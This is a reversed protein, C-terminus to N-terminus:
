APRFCAECGEAQIEGSGSRVFFCGDTRGSPSAGTSRVTHHTVIRDPALSLGLALDTSRSRRADPGPGARRPRRAERQGQLRVALPDPADAPLGAPHSGPGPGAHRRLHREQPGPGPCRPPSGSGRSPRGSADRRKLDAAQDYVLCHRGGTDEQGPLDDRQGPRRGPRSRRLHHHDQRPVRAPADARFLFLEHGVVLGDDSGITIEVRRNSPDVRKVEGVVPPPSEMGKIRSIDDSLGNQRLLTSFKAVRERLDTNNKTATELIRELERIRDNLEAQKLKFENAQKEVASKQDRLQLPRRAGPRPTRSRRRPTPRPTASRPGRRPSRSSLVAIRTRSCSSRTTSSSPWPTTTAGQRRGSGEERADVGAQADNLKKSLESVKKKQEETATRWNKSTTFVVTSIGLFILSFAMIVIVLIKGVYTM